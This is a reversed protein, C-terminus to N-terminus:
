DKIKPHDNGWAMTKSSLITTVVRIRLSSLASAINSNLMALALMDLGHGTDPYSAMGEVNCIFGSPMIRANLGKGTTHTWTVGPLFYFPFDRLPGNGPPSKVRQKLMEAYAKMEVGDNYWNVVFEQNGYWRRHEGGKMHPAWQCNSARFESATSCFRAIRKMGVEWWYKLFRGNDSTQLGVWPKAFSAFDPRHDFWSHIGHTVWYAWPSGPIAGFDGQCYRFVLPDPQRACLTTLAQEFRRRKADGDPEKVLRFYTGVSDSRAQENPERCLVYAATQLTGPNGVAFLGPGAHVLTDIKAREHIYSRLNEYSSIFMFSHMTLMGVRGHQGASELCRQIFAAYLDGKGAPYADSVLKKLTPNMKRASMYPPNTAVVDYRGSM